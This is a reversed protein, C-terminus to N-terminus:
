MAGILLLLLATAILALSLVILSPIWIAKKKLVSGVATMIGSAVLTILLLGSIGLIGRM